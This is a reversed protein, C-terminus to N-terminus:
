NEKRVIRVYIYVNFIYIYSITYLGIINILTYHGVKM